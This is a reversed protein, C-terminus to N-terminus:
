EFIEMLLREYRHRIIHVWEDEGINDLVHLLLWKRRPNYQVWLTGPTCTLIVGLAALGYTNTMKLPVNIFGSSHKEKQGRIIVRSVGINSRVIDYLVIGCLQIIARPRRMRVPPMDLRRLVLPVLV